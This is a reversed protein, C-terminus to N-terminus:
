ILNYNISVQVIKLRVTKLSLQMVLVIKAVMNPHQTPVLVLKPKRVMEVPKVAHVSFEMIQGSDM